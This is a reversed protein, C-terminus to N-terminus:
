VRRALAAMIIFFITKRECQLRFDYSGDGQLIFHTHYPDLEVADSEIPKSMASEYQM